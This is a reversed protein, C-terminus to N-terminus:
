AAGSVVHLRFRGARRPARALSGAALVLSAAVDDRAVNNSRKVMRVNGADDNAVTAAALSATLLGRSSPEVGLDGDLALRRLARIDETSESWRSTRTLLRVGPAADRVEGIRFRDLTVSEPKWQRVLDILDAVAPVRRGTAVHLVGADVLRQYTGAPVRDRREQERISPVGPAIALCECRGSRWLAAAASWARSAGIDLGVLPRGDRPPVARGCVREWDEVTLLVTSEDAAPRNLRYSQFRARLRPDGRAKDREELLKARFEPSGATM